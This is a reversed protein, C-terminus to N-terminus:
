WGIRYDSDQEVQLGDDSKWDGIVYGDGEAVCGKTVKKVGFIPRSRKICTRGEMKVEKNSAEDDGQPISSSLFAEGLARPLCRHRIGHFIFGTM